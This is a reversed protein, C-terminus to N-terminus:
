LLALATWVALQLMGNAQQAWIPFNDKYLAFQQQLRQVVTQDELFLITGYAQAFSQLKQETSPWQEPSVQPRLIDATLQWLHLHQAPRLIVVRASQMNFASPSQRVCEGVLETLAQESIPLKNELQYRSRRQQLAQLFTM